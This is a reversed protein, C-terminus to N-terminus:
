LPASGNGEVTFWGANHNRGRNLNAWIDIQAFICVVRLQKQTQRWIREIWWINMRTYQTDFGNWLNKPHKRLWLTPREPLAWLFMSSVRLSTKPQVVCMGSSQSIQWPIPNPEMGIYTPGNEKIINVTNFDICGQCYITISPPLNYVQEVIPAIWPPRRALGGSLCCQRSRLLQWRCINWCKM